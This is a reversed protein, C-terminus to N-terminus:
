VKWPTRMKRNIATTAQKDGVIKETKVWASIEYRKGGVANGVCGDDALVRRLAPLVPESSNSTWRVSVQGSHSM